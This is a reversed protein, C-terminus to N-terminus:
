GPQEGCTRWLDTIPVGLKALLVRLLPLSLGLVNSPVGDIGDV